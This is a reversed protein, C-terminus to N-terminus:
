TCKSIENKTYVYGLVNMKKPLKFEILANALKMQNWTLTINVQLEKEPLAFSGFSDDSSSAIREEHSQM